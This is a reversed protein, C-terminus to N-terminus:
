AAEGPPGCLARYNAVQIQEEDLFARVRSSTLAEIERVRSEKLRTTAASLEATAFGPHCMFETTGPRLGRLEALMTEETLRGTLRFGTFHDTASLRSREIIRRQFALPLAGFAQDVPLRVFPIGYRQAIHVIQGFVEPHLHTHKHTDLHLPRLGANLIREV